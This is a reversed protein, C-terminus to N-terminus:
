KKAINEMGTFPGYKHQEESFKDAYPGFPYDIPKTAIIPWDKRCDMYPHPQSNVFAAVDWAEEDSLLPINKTAGFPMNSKVFAAFNSIRYIGAGINYSKTGWLPPFFYETSDNKLIGKGDNGHCRACKLIYVIKGKEPDAPRNMYPLKETGSGFIKKKKPVDKSIWNLYAIIALMERSTNDISSGDMSREMCGNVRATITEVGGSRARFKPYTSAVLSFNNGFLKTGEYLHCNQCNMGNSKTSIKGKPGFYRATHIILERGYIILEGEPTAPIKSIDPANWLVPLDDPSIIVTSAKREKNSSTPSLIIWLFLFIGFLTFGLTKIYNKLEM